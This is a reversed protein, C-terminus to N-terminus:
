CMYPLGRATEFMTGYSKEYPIYVLIRLYMSFNSKDTIELQEVDM